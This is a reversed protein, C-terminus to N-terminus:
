KKIVWNFIGAARFLWAECRRTQAPTLKLKLQRQIM